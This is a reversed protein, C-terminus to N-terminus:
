GSKLCKQMREEEMEAYEQLSLSLIKNELDLFFRKNYKAQRNIITGACSLSCLVDSLILLILEM